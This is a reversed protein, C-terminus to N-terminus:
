RNYICLTPVLLPAGIRKCWLNNVHKNTDVGDYERNRFLRVVCHPFMKIIAITAVYYTTLYTNTEEAASDFTGTESGRDVKTAHTVTM